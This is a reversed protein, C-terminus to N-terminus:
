RSAEGLSVFLEQMNQVGFTQKLEAPTGMAAEKGERMLIIRHCYEAEDMYHTSVIVTKGNEALRNIVEWFERRARPDVGSTPEDLFLVPPNHVLACFLGLRQKYGMPIDRTLYELYDHLGLTSLLEETGSAKQWSWVHYITAYFEINERVRLDDYFSFKQSMYGIHRKVLDSQRACDFGNVRAQGSSPRLLGCLMRITTTKGAGNAGLFGFIEGKGINLNINDVAIFAGFRKSLELTEIM